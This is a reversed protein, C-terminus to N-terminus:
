RDHSAWKWSSSALGSKKPYVLGVDTGRSLATRALVWDGDHGPSASQSSRGTALTAFHRAFRWLMLWRVGGARKPLPKTTMSPNGRFDTAFSLHEPLFEVAAADWTCEMKRWEGGDDSCHTGQFKGEQVRGKVVVAAYEGRSAAAAAERRAASPM